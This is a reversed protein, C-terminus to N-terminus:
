ACDKQRGSVCLGSGKALLHGHASRGAARDDGGAAASVPVQQGLSGAPAPQVPEARVLAPQPPEFLAAPIIITQGKELVNVDAVGPNAQLFRQLAKQNFLVHDPLRYHRRVISGFHEGSKVVHAVDPGPQQEPAPGAAGQEVYNYPILIRQDPVLTNLDTVQQNVDKAIRCYFAIRSDSLEYQERLIKWLHEGPKVTHQEVYAQGGQFPKVTLSRKFNLHPEPAPPQEAALTQNDRALVPQGPLMTMCLLLMGAMAKAVEICLAKKM